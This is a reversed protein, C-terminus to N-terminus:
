NSKYKEKIKRITYIENIDFITPYDIQSVYLRNIIKNESSNGTIIDNNNIEFQSIPCSEGKNKDVCLSHGFLDMKGCVTFGRICRDRDYYKEKETYKVRKFLDYYDLDFYKVYFKLDKYKYAVKKAYEVCGSIKEESECHGPFPTNLGEIFTCDCFSTLNELNFLPYEKYDDNIKTTKIDLIPKEHWTREIAEMYHKESDSLVYLFITSINFSMVVFIIAIIGLLIKFNM